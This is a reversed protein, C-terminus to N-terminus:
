ADEATAPFLMTFKKAERPKAMWEAVTDRWEAYHTTEKHALVGAQSIYVEYLMFHSPDDNSQIIDFRLNEAEATSGLHNKKTAEIFDQIHEEKVFVDVCTTIM